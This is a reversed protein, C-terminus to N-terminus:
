FRTHATRTRTSLSSRRRDLWAYCAGFVIGSVALCFGQRQATIVVGAFFTQEDVFLPKPSLASTVCALIFVLVAGAVPFFIRADWRTKVQVWVAIAWPLILLFLAAAFGNILWFVIAFGVVFRLGTRNSLAGYNAAAIATWVMFVLSALAASAAYQSVRRAFTVLRADSVAETANDM